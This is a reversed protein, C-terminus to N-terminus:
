FGLRRSRHKCILFLVKSKLQELRLPRRGSVTDEHVNNEYAKTRERRGDEEEVKTKLLWRPENGHCLQRRREGVQALTEGDHIVIEM